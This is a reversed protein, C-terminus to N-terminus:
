CKRVGVWTAGKSAVNYELRVMAAAVRPGPEEPDVLGAQRSPPASAAEPGTATTEKERPEDLRVGDSSSTLTDSALEIPMGHSWVTIGRQLRIPDLRRGPGWVPPPTRGVSYRYDATTAATSIPHHVRRPSRQQINRNTTNPCPLKSMASHVLRIWGCTCSLRSGLVTGGLFYPPQHSMSASTPTRPTTDHHQLSSWPLPPPSSL